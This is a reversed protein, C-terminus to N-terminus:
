KLRGNDTNPYPDYRSHISLNKQPSIARPQMLLTETCVLVTGTVFLFQNPPYDVISIRQANKGREGYNNGATCALSEHCSKVLFGERPLFFAEKEVEPAVSRLYKGSGGSSLSRLRDLSVDYSFVFPLHM